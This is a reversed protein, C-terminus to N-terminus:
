KAYYDTKISIWMDGDGNVSREWENKRKVYKLAKEEDEWVSDVYSEKSEKEIFEVVFVEKM